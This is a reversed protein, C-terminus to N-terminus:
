WKCGYASMAQKASDDAMKCAQALGNRGQPTAALDKWSKRTQEFSSRMMARASEPVKDNLCTEYKELYSDCEAVGIKDGSGATTGSTAQTSSACAGLALALLLCSLLLLFKQTHANM